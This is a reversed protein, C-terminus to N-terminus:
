QLFNKDMVSTLKTQCKPCQGETNVSMKNKETLVNDQVAQILEIQKKQGMGYNLSNTPKLLIENLVESSKITIKPELDDYTEFKVRYRITM